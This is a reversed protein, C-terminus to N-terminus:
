NCGIVLLRVQHHPRICHKPWFGLLHLSPQAQGLEKCSRLAGGIDQPLVAMPPLGTFSSMEVMDMAVYPAATEM